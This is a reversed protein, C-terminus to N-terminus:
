FLVDKIGAGPTYPYDLGKILVAPIREDAQGMMVMAFAALSDAYAIDAKSIKGDLDQLNRELLRSPVNAVGVAKGIAGARYPDGMSDNIVVGINVGKNELFYKAIEHASKDPDDPLLVVHDEKGLGVNSKDIGASTCVHGLRHRTVVVGPSEKTGDMVAMIEESEEIMAQALRPDRGSKRSIELAQKSPIFSDISIIKGEAKSVIKQAIVLVDKNSLTM